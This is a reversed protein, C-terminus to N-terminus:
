LRAHVQGTSKWRASNMGNNRRVQLVWDRPSIPHISARYEGLGRLADRLDVLLRGRERLVEHLDELHDVALGAEALDHLLDLHVLSRALDHEVLQHLVAERADEFRALFLGIREGFAASLVVE